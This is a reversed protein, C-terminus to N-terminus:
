QEKYKEEWTFKDVYYAYTMWAVWGVLSVLMLILGLKPGLFNLLFYFAVGGAVYGAVTKVTEVAAQTHVIM